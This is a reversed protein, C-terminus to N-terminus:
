VDCQLYKVLLLNDYVLLMRAVLVFFSLYFVDELDLPVLSLM